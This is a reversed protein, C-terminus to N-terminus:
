GAGAQVPVSLAALTALLLLAAGLRRSAVGARGRRPSNPLSQASSERRMPDTRVATCGLPVGTRNIAVLLGVTVMAHVGKQIILERYGM